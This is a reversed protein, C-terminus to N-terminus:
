KIHTIKLSKTLGNATLRVFYIGSAVHLGITNKGDWTIQHDGATQQGNFLESVEQGLKNFIKISINSSRSLKYRISTSPNFPNPYNQFLEFADPLGSDDHHIGLSGTNEFLFMLDDTEDSTTIDLDGDNDRDHLIACSPNTSGQLFFPNIFSGDGANEFVTYNNSVYNSAVMDLDGDGDLDGLDIALPFYGDFYEDPNMLGGQGDNLVVGVANESPITSNGSYVVDAFGDGNVDGTTMMWPRGTCNVKDSFSLGGNGDGLLLIVERSDFAGVFVDQIGDNNADTVSCSYEGQGNAEFPVAVSFTGNGNNPLVSLTNADPHAMIIDTHGDGNYDIVELARVIGSASLSSVPSFGGSGNGMFVGLNEPVAWQYGVAFDIMGDENFDGGENTSAHTNPPMSHVTFDSYRGNGDNLFLRVDSSTENVVALDSWGDNNIDGAYAGYTQIHGEGPQRVFVTDVVTQHLVGPSTKIWFNWIYATSLPTGSASMMGKTFSVTVWEGAIFSETPTFRVQTNGNELLLNGPMPGSWRGFVKVTSGNVSQPDIATDFLVTIDTNALADITQSAPSISLVNPAQQGLSSATLIILFPALFKNVKM